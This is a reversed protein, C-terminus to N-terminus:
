TYLWAVNPAKSGDIDVHVFSKAIGVRKFLDANFLAQLIRFRIGSDSAAIDAALGAEHASSDVGGVKRNYEPCRLGSNIVLPTGVMSRLTDLKQGLVLNIEGRAPCDPEGCKCHFEESKFYRM